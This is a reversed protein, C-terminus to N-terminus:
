FHFDSLGTGFTFVVCVLVSWLCCFMWVVRLCPWLAMEVGWRVMDGGGFPTHIPTVTALVNQLEAVNM